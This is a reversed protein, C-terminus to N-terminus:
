FKLKAVRNVPHEMNKSNKLQESHILKESDPINMELENEFHEVDVELFLM